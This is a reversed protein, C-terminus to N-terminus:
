SKFEYPPPPPLTPHFPREIDTECPRQLQNDCVQPRLVISISEKMSRSAPLRFEVYCCPQNRSSARLSSSNWAEITDPLQQHDQAKKPKSVRLGVKAETKM